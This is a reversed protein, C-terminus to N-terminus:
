LAGTSQKLAWLYNKSAIYIVGNAAVPTMWSAAGLDIRSLLQMERGAALVNLHKETALYVKGDAVMTSGITRSKTEYVWVALGTEVDLCHM